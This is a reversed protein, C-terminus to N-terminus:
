RKGFLTLAWGKGVKIAGQPCFEQCCFCRICRRYDIVLGATEEAIAQQPCDNRCIGCRVCTEREIVPRTTLANKLRRRAWEPITWETHERPPLRFDSLMVESLLDGVIRIRDLSTAGVQAEAAAMVLPLLEPSVGVVAGAVVDLAVPDTGAIVVGIKRPEGSGPGNGEMGDIADMITLRPALLSALEVLMRAFAAHDVGTNFHWQVKRKGPVCGFLNKIAGTLVTMGHTKLKPLNIIADADWAPRAIEFRQFRGGGKVTVGDSFDSLPVGEDKLVELVGAREAVSRADGMGPSDGVLVSAGTGRVLRIVARVVEPHTTVASDPASAKLLNPKILVREEPGIFADIGGLLDVARKVADFVNDRDYTVCKVLAVTENM